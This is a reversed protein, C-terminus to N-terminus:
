IGLSVNTNDERIEKMFHERRLWINADANRKSQKSRYLQKDGYMQMKTEHKNIM